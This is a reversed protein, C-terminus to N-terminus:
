SNVFWVGREHVKHNPLASLTFGPLRRISVREHEWSLFDDRLSIKKHVMKVGVGKAAGAAELHTWFRFHIGPRILFGGKSYPLIPFFVVRRM